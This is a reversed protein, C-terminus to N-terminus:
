LAGMRVLINRIMRGFNADTALTYCALVNGAAFITGHGRRETILM